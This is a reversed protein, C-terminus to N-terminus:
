KVEYKKFFDPNSQIEDALNETAMQILSSTEIWALSPPYIADTMSGVWSMRSEDEQQISEIKIIAFGKYSIMCDFPNFNNECFEVCNHYEGFNYFLSLRRDYSSVRMSVGMFLDKYNTGRLNTAGSIKIRGNSEAMSCRNTLTHAPYIGAWM